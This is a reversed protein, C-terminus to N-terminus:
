SRRSRRSRRAGDPDGRVGRGVAGAPVPRRRPDRAARRRIQPRSRNAPRRRARGRTAELAEDLHDTMSLFYCLNHEIGVRSEIPSVDRAASVAERLQALGADIEGLGVLDVGLINLLRPEGERSGIARLVGLAEEAMEKSERYRLAAMTTSALGGLVLAREVTPPEAPVLRVAIRREELSAHSEGVTWLFFARRDHLLGARM